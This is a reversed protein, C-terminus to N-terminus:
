VKIDVIKKILAIGITMSIVGVTMMVWGIPNVFLTGIYKPNIVSLVLGIALPLAGVIMGSIRGQATLTRIEGKIRIRERITHSIGDLVEALNGGVQRQILVATIVLDLDESEIRKTLGVLAEETPTGLNMERLTRGFEVSIPAPMERSVLEMAQLFSFGARLSNSMVVLSDGIQSNFKQVRKLKIRKVVFQPVIFGIVVGVWGIIANRTIAIMLGGLGTMILFNIMVFEEGRLPIDAKLLEAEVKRTFERAAFIQSAEQFLGKWDFNKLRGLANMPKDLAGAKATYTKMRQALERKSNTATLYVGYILLSVFLFVLILIVSVLM